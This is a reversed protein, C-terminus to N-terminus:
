STPNMCSLNSISSEYKTPEAPVFATGWENQLISLRIPVEDFPLHETHGQSTISPSFDLKFHLPIDKFYNYNQTSDVQSTKPSAIKSLYISLDSRIIAGNFIRRSQVSSGASLIISNPSANAPANERESAWRHEPNNIKQQCSAGVHINYQLAYPKSSFAAGHSRM